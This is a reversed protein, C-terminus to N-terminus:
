KKDKRSQHSGMALSQALTEVSPGVSRELVVQVVDGEIINVAERELELVPSVVSRGSVANYGVKLSFTPVNM